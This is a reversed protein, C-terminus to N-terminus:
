HLLALEKLEKIQMAMEASPPPPKYTPEPKAPILQWIVAVLMYLAAASSLAMFGGACRDRWSLPKVDRGIRTWLGASVEPPAVRALHVELMTLRDDLEDNM